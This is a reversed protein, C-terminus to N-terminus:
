EQTAILKKKEIAEKIKNYIYSYGEDSPHIKDKAFYLNRNKVFPDDFRSAYIDIYVVGLTKCVKYFIESLMKSRANYLASFPFWFLTSSGVNLPGVLIVNNNAIKKVTNLVLFLNSIIEKSTTYSLVDNGGVSILALDFYQEELQPIKDVIDVVRAGNQGHNNIHVHPYDRALRGPISNHIDKAGVGVALSDGLILFHNTTERPSTEYPITKRGLRKDTVLFRISRLVYVFIYIAIVFVLDVILLLITRQPEPFPDLAGILSTIM